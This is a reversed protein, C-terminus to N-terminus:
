LILRTAIEVIAFKNMTEKPTPIALAPKGTALYLLLPTLGAWKKFGRHFTSADCIGTPGTLLLCSDPGDLILRTAADM